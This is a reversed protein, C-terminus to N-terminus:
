GAPEAGPRAVVIGDRGSRKAERLATDADVVSQHVAEAPGVALGISVTPTRTGPGAPTIGRVADLARRGIELARDRGVGALLMGFEDGGIRAVVDGARTVSRVAEAVRQLVVDGVPHGATDNVVKFRDVDVVLVAVREGVRLATEALAEDFRRRNALGTLPDEASLRAVRAHEDRLSEFDLLTQAERLRRVRRRWLEASLMRGYALGEAAGPEDQDALVHLLTERAATETVWDGATAAVARRATALAAAPRGARQQARALYPLAQNVTAPVRSDGLRRILTAIRDAATGPDTGADDATACALLLQARDRHRRGVTAITSPHVGPGAISVVSGDALDSATRAYHAAASRHEAATRGGADEAGSREVDAAWDLHFAALNVTRVWTDAPTRHREAPGALPAELHPLVLEYLRMLHYAIALGTHVSSRLWSGHPLGRLLAEARALDSVAQDDLGPTEAAARALLRETARLTLTVARWGADDAEEAAALALDAEAMAAGHDGSEHLAVGRVYHSVMATRGTQVPGATLEALVADPRGTQALQILQWAREPDSALDREGVLDSVDVLPTPVAGALVGASPPLGEAVAAPSLHAGRDEILSVGSPVGDAAVLDPGAGAGTRARGAGAPAQATVGGAVPVGPDPTIVAVAPVAPGAEDAVAPVVM